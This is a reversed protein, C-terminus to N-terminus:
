RLLKSPQTCPGLVCRLLKDLLYLSTPPCMSSPLQPFSHPGWLTTCYSTFIDESSGQSGSLPSPFLLLLWSPSKLTTTLSSPLLWFLSGGTPAPVSSLLGHMPSIQLLFSFDGPVFTRTRSWPSSQSTGWGHSPGKSMSPAGKNCRLRAKM